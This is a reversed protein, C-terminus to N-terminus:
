ETCKPLYRVNIALMTSTQNAMIYNIKVLGAAQEFTEKIRQHRAGSTVTKAYMLLAVAWFLLGYGVFAEEM